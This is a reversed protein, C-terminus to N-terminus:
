DEEPMKEKIAEGYLKSFAKYKDIVRKPAGDAKLFVMDSRGGEEDVYYGKDLFEKLQKNFRDEDKKRFEDVKKQQASTIKEFAEGYAESRQKMDIKDDGFKKKVAEEGFLKIFIM